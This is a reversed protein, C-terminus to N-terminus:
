RTPNDPRPTGALDAAADAETLVRAKAARRCYPDACTGGGHKQDCQAYVFNRQREIDEASPQPKAVSFSGDPHRVYYTPAGIDAPTIRPAIGMNESM